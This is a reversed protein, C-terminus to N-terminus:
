DTYGPVVYGGRLFWRFYESLSPFVEKPERFAIHFRYVPPDDQNSGTSGYLYDYGQHALMAFVGDPIAVGNESACDRLEGTLKHLCGYLFDSGKAVNGPNRGMIRLYDRFLQPLTLGLREELRAVEDATCGQVASAANGRELLLDDILGM